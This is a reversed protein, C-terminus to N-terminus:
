DMNREGTRWRLQEFRPVISEVHNVHLDLHRQRKSDMGPSPQLLRDRIEQVQM